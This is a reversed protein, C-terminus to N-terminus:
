VYIHESEQLIKLIQVCQIKYEDGKIMFMRMDYILILM